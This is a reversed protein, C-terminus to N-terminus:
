VRRQKFFAKLLRASSAAEVGRVVAARHNLRDDEVVNMLSGVAGAKPDDAGYVLRDLRALVIAGACMACPELTVYLTCGTLRWGGLERAAERIALMEAHATPDGWAERRNWGRGIIRGARVVIAGVPVEGQDAAMKALRLAERM